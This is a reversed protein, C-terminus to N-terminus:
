RFDKSVKKIRDVTQGSIVLNRPRKLSPAVGASLKRRNAASRTTRNNEVWFYFHLVYFKRDFPKTKSVELVKM